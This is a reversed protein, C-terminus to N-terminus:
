IPQAKNQSQKTRSAHLRNPACAVGKRPMPMTLRGM